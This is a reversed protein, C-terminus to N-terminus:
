TGRILNGYEEFTLKKHSQFFKANLTKVRDEFENIFKGLDDLEKTFESPVLKEFGDTVRRAIHYQFVEREDVCDTYFSYQWELDKIFEEEKEVKLMEKAVEKAIMKVESPSLKTNKAIVEVSEEPLKIKSRQVSLRPM